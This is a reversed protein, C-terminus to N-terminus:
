VRSISLFTLSPRHLHLPIECFSKAVFGGADLLRRYVASRSALLVVSSLILLALCAIGMILCGVLLGGGATPSGSDFFSLPPAAIETGDEAVASGNSSTVSVSSSEEDGSTASHLALLGLVMAAMTLVAVLSSRMARRRPRAMSSTNRFM